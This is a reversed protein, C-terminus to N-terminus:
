RLEKEAESGTSMASELKRRLWDPIPMARHTTKDVCAVIIAGTTALDGARFTRFEMRISSRGLKALCVEIDIIDDHRLAIKFDCEVHVRPLTFDRELYVLGLTRMFETEASEFYRFMATYHIRGSADTDIFRIRTQFRFPEPERM